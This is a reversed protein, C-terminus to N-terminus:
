FWAASEEIAEMMEMSFDFILQILREADLARRKFVFRLGDSSVLEWGETGLANLSTEFEADDTAPLSVVKYEWEPQLFQNFFPLYPQVESLVMALIAEPSFDFDFPDFDFGFDFDDGFDDESLCLWSLTDSLHTHSELSYSVASDEDVFAISILGPIWTPPAEAGHEIFEGVDWGFGVLATSAYMQDIVWDWNALAHGSRSVGIACMSPDFRRSLEHMSGVPAYGLEELMAAEPSESNVLVLLNSSAAQSMTVAGVLTIGLLLVIFLRKMGKKGGSQPTSIAKISMRAM